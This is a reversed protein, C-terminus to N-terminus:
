KKDVFYMNKYFSKSKKDSKDKGQKGNGQQWDRMEKPMKAMMKVLHPLGSSRATQYDLFHIVGYKHSATPFATGAL